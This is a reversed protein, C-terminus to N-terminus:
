EMNEKLEIRMLTSQHLCKRMTPYCFVATVAWMALHLITVENAAIIAYLAIIFVSALMLILADLYYSFMIAVINKFKKM